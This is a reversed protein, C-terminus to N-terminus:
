RPTDLAETQNRNIDSEEEVSEESDIADETQNMLKRGERAADEVLEEGKRVAQETDKKVENKHITMTASDDLDAFSIWGGVVMAVVAVINLVIIIVNQM